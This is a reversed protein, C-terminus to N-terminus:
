SVADIVFIEPIVKPMVNIIEATKEGIQPLAAPLYPRFGIISLALKPIAIVILQMPNAVLTYTRIPNLSSM